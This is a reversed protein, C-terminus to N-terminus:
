RVLAQELGLTLINKAANIDRDHHTKCKPCFWDRVSLEHKGDDYNCHSCIQSTKYPNVVELQRGYKDSKYELMERLMRWSQNAIARSLNKNKLLNTTKLNEIAILDYEEVLRKSIKHLYDKRQNAIKENYKAVMKRAAQYNKFDLVTRQNDTELFDERALEKKASLLRRAMRKEWYHKKEALIKDFRITPIRLGNSGIVLDSVGFDLGITKNTKEFVQNEHEFLLTVTYDGSPSISLTASKVKQNPLKRGKCKIVGIKPIKLRKDDLIHITSVTKYSKRHTKKSKFRPHGGIKSFFRSFATTLQANVQQM